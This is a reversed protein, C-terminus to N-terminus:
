KMAMLLKEYKARLEPSMKEKDAQYEASYKEYLQNMRTIIESPTLTNLQKLESEMADLKKTDLTNISSTQSM